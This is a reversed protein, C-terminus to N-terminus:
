VRFGATFRASAAGFDYKPDALQAWRALARGHQIEEEGWRRAIQQFRPDDHFVRCLYQAYDAGNHEVLGAAKVIRLSGPDVMTSDFREWSIDDLTWHGM